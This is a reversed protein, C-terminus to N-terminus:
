LELDGPNRVPDAVKEPKRKPRASPGATQGLRPVPLLRLALQKSKDYPLLWARIPPEGKMFVIQEFANLRMVEDPTALPRGVHTVSLNSGVTVGYTDTVGTTRTKTSSTGSSWNSSGGGPGTSGGHSQSVTEAQSTSESYAKSQSRSESVGRTENHVTSQGTMDSVLKATEYDSVGFFARVGCNAVFSRWTKPYHQEFQGLDQVFFWLKVGYGAIYALADEIPQMHHLQPFEDLVMLVPPQEREGSWSEKLERMACGVLVRLMARYQSLHEPPICLYITTDERAKAFSFDSVATATAVRNYSWIATQDIAETLVGVWQRQSAMTTVIVQACERASPHKGGGMTVVLKEFDTPPLTLLRRVEALTRARVLHSEGDPPALATATCVHLVIGRVVAKATNQWFPDRAGSGAAPTFMLEVLFTVADHLDAEAEPKTRLAVIWDLPNWRAGGPSFPAFRVVKQGLESARWGATLEYNEGKVDLVVASHPWSLLNPVIHCRGKGSRTPAVTLLHGPENGFVRILELGKASMHAYFGLFPGDGRESISPRRLDKASM